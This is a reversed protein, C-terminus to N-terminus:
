SANSTIMKSENQQQCYCSKAVEEKKICMSGTSMINAVSLSRAHWAIFLISM